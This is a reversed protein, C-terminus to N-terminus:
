KTSKHNKKARLEGILCLAILTLIIRIIRYFLYGESFLEDMFISPSLVPNCTLIFIADFVFFVAFHWIYIDMTNRGVIALFKNLPKISLSHIFRCIMIVVYSSSVGELFTLAVSLIGHPGYDSIVMNAGDSGLLVSIVTIAVAAIIIVIIRAINTDEFTQHEKFWYGVIMCAACFFGRGIGFPLQFIGPITEISTFLLFVIIALIDSLLNKNKIVKRYSYFILYGTFMAPLTWLHCNTPMIIDIMYESNFTFPTSTILLQGLKGCNPFLGSGYFLNAIIPIVERADGYGIFPARILELLASVIMLLWFPIMLRKLKKVFFNKFNEKDSNYTFGAAIFFVTMGFCTIGRFSIACHVLLVAFISFAKAYDLYEIRKM